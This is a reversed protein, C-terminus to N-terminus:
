KTAIITGTAEPNVSDAYHFGGPQKVVIRFVHGPSLWGSNFNMGSAVGKNLDSSNGFSLPPRAPPSMIRHVGSDANIWTVIDGVKVTVINPQFTQNGPLLEAGSAIIIDVTTSGPVNTTVNRTFNGNMTISNNRISVGPIDGALFETSNDYYFGKEPTFSHLFPRTTNDDFYALGTGNAFFREGILNLAYASNVAVGSGGITIEDTAAAAAIAIVVYSMTSTKQSDKHMTIFLYSLTMSKVIAMFNAGFQSLKQFIHGIATLFQHVAFVECTLSYGINTMDFSYMFM